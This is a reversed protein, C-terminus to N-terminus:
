SSSYERATNMCMCGKSGLHFTHGAQGQVKLLKAHEKAFMVYYPLLCQEM